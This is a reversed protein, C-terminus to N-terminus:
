RVLVRWQQAMLGGDPPLPLSWQTCMVDAAPISASDMLLLRDFHWHLPNPSVEVNYLTPIMMDANILENGRAILSSQDAADVGVPKTIVLGRRADVSTDGVAQNVYTYIGDGEVPAEGDVQNSRYIVWRNPAGFYDRSVTRNTGLMTTAQEDTYTWESSRDVPNVYQDLRLRGDWDSWVGAYGVSALMDNVVTLWTLTDDFAWTRSTPATKAAASQDIAYKTYGRASLITEVKTLYTEGAAISYADGVPQNLRLLIDYGEVDYTPPSEGLPWDPTSPHYVGLNFRATVGGGSIIIYPRLLDGGWDVTRTISLRATGHLTNYSNREVNGGALSDSIDEVLDLNIDVIELGGTLTIVDENQLLQVVQASTLASRPTDVHPQM